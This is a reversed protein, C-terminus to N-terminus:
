SKATTLSSLKVPEACSLTPTVDHLESISVPHPRFHAYKQVSLPVTSTNQYMAAGNIIQCIQPPWNPNDYAESFSPTISLYSLPPNSKLPLPLYDSPYVVKSVPLSIANLKVNSCLNEAELPSVSPIKPLPLKEAPPPHVPMSYIPNFQKVIYKGHIKIIGEKIKAEIGNDAHFTTGGFCDAQLNQMVLARLRLQIDGLTVLCDIEGLSAMRTKKDALLALQNNPSMNLKLDSVVSSKIYSVTAGSDLTIQVSSGNFHVLLVQSPISVLRNLNFSPDYINDLAEM